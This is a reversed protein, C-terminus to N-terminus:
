QGIASRLRAVSEGGAFLVEPFRRHQLMDAYIAAGEDLNLGLGALYQMRLNRDTNISADKLWDTLDAPRGAYTSFLDVVSAM